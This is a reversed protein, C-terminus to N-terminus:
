KSTSSCGYFPTYKKKKERKGLSKKLSIDAPDGTEISYAICMNGRFAKKKKKQKKQMATFPSIFVHM